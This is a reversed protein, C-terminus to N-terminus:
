DLLQRAMHLWQLPSSSANPDPPPDSPTSHPDMPNPLTSPHNLSPTASFFEDLYARFIKLPEDPNNYAAPGAYEQVWRFYEAPSWANRQHILLIPPVDAPPAEAQYKVILHHILTLRDLSSQRILADVEHPREAFLLQRFLKLNDLQETVAMRGAERADGCGGGGGDENDHETEDGAAHPPAGLQTTTGPEMAMFQTVEFELEALEGALRLKVAESLPTMLSAHFMFSKLLEETLTLLLQELQSADVRALIEHRVLSMKARLEHMYGGGAPHNPNSAAMVVARPPTHMRSVITSLERQMAALMPTMVAGRIKDALAIAPQMITQIESAYEQMARGLLRSLESLTNFIDMNTVQSATAVPGV